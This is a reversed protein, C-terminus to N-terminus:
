ERQFRVKPAGEEAPERKAPYEPLLDAHEAEAIRRQREEVEKRLAEVNDMYWPAPSYSVELGKERLKELKKVTKPPPM